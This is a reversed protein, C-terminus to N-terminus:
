ASAGGGGLASAPRHSRAFRSGAACAAVLISMLWCVNAPMLYRWDAVPVVFLMPALVSFGGLWLLASVGIMDADWGGRRSLLLVLGLLGMLYHRYPIQFVGPKVARGLFGACVRERVAPLFSRNVLGSGNPVINRLFPSYIDAGAIGTLAELMCAKHRLYAGPYRIALMPLDRLVSDSDLFDAARFPPNRSFFLYDHGGGCSYGSVTREMQAAGIRRYTRLRQFDQVPRGTFRLTGVLEYAAYLNAFNGNRRVNLYSYVGQQLLPALCGAALLALVAWRGIPPRGALRAFALFSVTLVIYAPLASHRSLEAAALLVTCGAAHLWLRRRACILRWIAYCLWWFAIAFWVDKWLTITYPWLPYYLSCLVALCIAVRASHVFGYLVLFVTGWLLVGQLFAVAAVQLSADVGPTMLHVTRMVLTMAPPHWDNYRGSVAQGWMDISDNSMHAPFCVATWFMSLIAAFLVLWLSVPLSRVAEGASWIWALGLLLAAVAMSTLAAAVAAQRPARWLSRGRDFVTGRGSRFVGDVSVQDVTIGGAPSAVFALRQWGSPSRPVQVSYRQVSGAGPPSFVAQKVGVSASYLDLTQVQGGVALRVQGSWPHTLLRISLPGGVFSFFATRPFTSHAILAAGSSAPGPSRFEWPAGQFTAGRLDVQGSPTSLGLLWVEAAHSAPNKKGTAEVSVHLGARAVPCNQFSLPNRAPDDWYVQISQVAPGASATFEIRSLRSAFGELWYRYTVVGFSGAVAVSAAAAFVFRRM